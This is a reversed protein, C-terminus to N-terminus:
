KGLDGAGPGKLGVGCQGPTEVAVPQIKIALGIRMGTKLDQVTPHLGLGNLAPNECAIDIALELLRTKIRLSDVLAVSGQMM